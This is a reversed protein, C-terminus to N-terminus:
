PLFHPHLVVQSEPVELVESVVPLMFESPVLQMDFGRMPALIGRILFAYKLGAFVLGTRSVGLTFATIGPRHPLGTESVIRSPYPVFLGLDHHTAIRFVPSRGIESAVVPGLARSLGHCWIVDPRFRVLTERLERGARANRIAGLMSAMSPGPAGSTFAEVEYGGSRLLAGCRQVFTETGGIMGRFDNVLLIRKARSPLLRELTSLWTDPAYPSLDLTPKERSESLLDRITKALGAATVPVPLELSPPIFQALGGQRPGVVGVGASLSELAGLGFTELFRSPMLVYDTSSRLFPAIVAQFDKRGAYSIRGKAPVVQQFAVDDLGSLNDIGEGQFLGRLPGDGFVTLNANGRAEPELLSWAQVLLDAGKEQTLRGFFTFRMPM